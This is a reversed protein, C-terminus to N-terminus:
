ELQFSSNGFFIKNKDKTNNAITINDWVICNELVVNDGIICNQGISVFGNLITTKPINSGEGIYINGSPLPISLNIKNFIISKHTELYSEPTGIDSWFHNQSIYGKIAHLDILKNYVPIIDASTKNNPLFDLIKNSMISIGTFALSKPNAPANISSINNNTKNPSLPSSLTVKNFTKYDHLILTIIANERKHFEIAPELNINSLIDGNHVIFIDESHLFEKINGIGGAIGLIQPEYSFNFTANFKTNSLVYNKIKDALHHTNICFESINLSKLHFIINDIIPKGFIPFLPKPLYNTLPLVRTGYGACLIVAKM